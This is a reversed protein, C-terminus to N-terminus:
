GQNSPTQNIENEINQLNLLLSNEQAVTLAGGLADADSQERHEIEALRRIEEDFFNAAIEGRDLKDNLLLHLRHLQDDVAALDRRPGEDTTDPAPTPITVYVPQVVAQPREEHRQIQPPDCVKYIGYMDVDRCPGNPMSSDARTLSSCALLLGALLLIPAFKM